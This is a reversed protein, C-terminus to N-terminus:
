PTSPNWTSSQPDQPLTGAHVSACLPPRAGALVLAPPPEMATGEWAELFDPMRDPRRTEAASM